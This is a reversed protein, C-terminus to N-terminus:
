PRGRIVESPTHPCFPAANLFKKSSM